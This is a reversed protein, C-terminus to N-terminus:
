SLHKQKLVNILFVIDLTISQAGFVFSGVETGAEASLTQFIALFKGRLLLFFSPGLM